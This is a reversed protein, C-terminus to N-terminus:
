VVGYKPSLELVYRVFELTREFEKPDPLQRVTLAPNPRGEWTRDILDGWSPDLEAKAWEAGARKSDIRGKHLDHLMRCYSLVIFAQYFRNRFSDPDTLIDRGWDHMTERIEQRLVNVPVPDVFVEPGPGALAIGDERLIWRV